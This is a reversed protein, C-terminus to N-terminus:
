QFFTRPPPFYSDSTNLPIESKKVAWIRVDSWSSFACTLSTLHEKASLHCLQWSKNLPDNKLFSIDAWPHRSSEPKTHTNQLPTHKNRQPSLSLTLILQHHWCRMNTHSISVCHCVLPPTVKLNWLAQSRLTKTPQIPDSKAKQLGITFRTFFHIYMIPGEWRTWM